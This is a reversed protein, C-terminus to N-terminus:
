VADVQDDHAGHPFAEIEDLFTSNWPGAVLRVLGGEALSAWPGARVAKDASVQAM